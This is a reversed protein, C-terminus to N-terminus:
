VDDGKFHFSHIITSAPVLSETLYDGQIFALLEAEVNLGDLVETLM